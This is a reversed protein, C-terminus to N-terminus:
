TMEYYEYLYLKTQVCESSSSNECIDDNQQKVFAFMKHGKQCVLVSSFLIYIHIYISYIPRLPDKKVKGTRHDSLCM